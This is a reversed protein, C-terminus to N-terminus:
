FYNCISEESNVDSGKEACYDIYKKQHREYIRKSKLNEPSSLLFISQESLGHKRMDNADSDWLVDFLCDFDFPDDVAETPPVTETMKEVLDQTSLIPDTFLADVTFDAM